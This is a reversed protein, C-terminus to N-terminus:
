QGAGSGNSGAFRLYGERIDVTSEKRLRDSIRRGGPMRASADWDWSTPWITGNQTLKNLVSLEAMVDVAEIGHILMRKLSNGKIRGDDILRTIFSIARMERMLSSNFSTVSIGNFPHAEGRARGPRLRWASKSRM